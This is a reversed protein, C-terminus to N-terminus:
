PTNNGYRRRRPGDSIFVTASRSWGRAGDPGHRRLHAGHGRRGGDAEQAPCCDPRGGLRTLVGGDQGRTLEQSVYGRAADDSDVTEVAGRPRGPAVRRGALKPQLVKQRQGHRAGPDHRVAVVRPQREAPGRGANVVKRPVQEVPQPHHPGLLLVPREDKHRM